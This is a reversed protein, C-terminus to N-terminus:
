KQVSLWTMEEEGNWAATKMAKLCCKRRRKRWQGNEKMTKKRRWMTERNAENEGAKVGTLKRALQKSRKSRNIEAAAV